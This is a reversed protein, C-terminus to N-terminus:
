IKIGKSEDGDKEEIETVELSCHRLGTKEILCYLVLAAAVTDLSNHLAASSDVDTRYCLYM